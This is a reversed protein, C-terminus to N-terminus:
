GMLIVQFGPVVAAAGITSNLSVGIALWTASTSILASLTVTSGGATETLVGDADHGTGATIEQREIEGAGTTFSAIGTLYTHLFAIPTDNNSSNLAIQPSTSAGSSVSFTSIPTTTSVGTYVAAILAKSIAASVSSVVTISGTTAPFLYGVHM